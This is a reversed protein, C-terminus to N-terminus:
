QVLVGKKSKRMNNKRASFGRTKAFLKYFEFALAIEGFYFRKVDNVVLRLFDIRRVDESSNVCYYDVEDFGCVMDESMDCSGDMSEEEM